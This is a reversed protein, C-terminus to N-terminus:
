SCMHQQQQKGTRKMKTDIKKKSEEFKKQDNELLKIDYENKFTTAPSPYTKDNKKTSVRM